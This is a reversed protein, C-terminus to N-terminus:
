EGPMSPQLPGGEEAAKVEIEFVLNSFPPISGYGRPGYAIQYPCILKAKGGVQMMSVGETWAPIVQQLSFSIPEPDNTNEDFVRGDLFTGKYYVSVKDTKNIKKGNGKKVEIFYLGSATPQTTIKNDSLYKEFDQKSQMEMEQMRKMQEEERKQYLAQMQTSDVIKILKIEALIKDNPKMFPPLQKSRTVHVFFSDANVLFSASDGESMMCLADDLSGKFPSPQVVYNIENGPPIIRGDTLISDKSKIKLLFKMLVGDGTKPHKESKSKSHFRFYLGNDEKEYGPIDSGSCSVIFIALLSLGFVPKFIKMM